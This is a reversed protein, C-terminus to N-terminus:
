QKLILESREGLRGLPVAEERGVELAEGVVANAHELARRPRRDHVNV